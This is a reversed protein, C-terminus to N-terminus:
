LQNESGLDATKYLTLTKAEKGHTVGYCPQEVSLAKNRTGTKGMGRWAMERQDAVLKWGIAENVRLVERCAAIYSGTGRGCIEESREEKRHRKIFGRNSM